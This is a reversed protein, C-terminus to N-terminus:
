QLVEGFYWPLAQVRLKKSFPPSTSSQPPGDSQTEETVIEFLTSHVKGSLLRREKASDVRKGCAKCLFDM